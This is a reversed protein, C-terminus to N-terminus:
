LEVAAVKHGKGQKVGFYEVAGAPLTSTGAGATPSEGFAIRTDIDTVLRVFRTKPQFAASQVSSSTFSVNQIALAVEEGVPVTYGSADRGLNAYETINLESM